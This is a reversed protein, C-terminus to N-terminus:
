EAQSLTVGPQMGICGPNKTGQSCEKLFASVRIQSWLSIPVPHAAAETKGGDEGPTHNM